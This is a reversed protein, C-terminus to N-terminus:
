NIWKFWGKRRGRKHSENQTLLGKEEEKEQAEHAQYLEKGFWYFWILSNWQKVIEKVDM